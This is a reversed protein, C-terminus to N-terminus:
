PPLGKLVMAILLSDSINKGPAKLSTAATEARVMYDTVVEKETMKLTSLQTYLNFVRPMGKGLYNTEYFAPQRRVTM